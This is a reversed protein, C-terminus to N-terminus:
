KAAVPYDANHLRRQTQTTTQTSLTTQAVPYGADRYDAGPYDADAYDADSAGYGIYGPCCHLSAHLKLPIFRKYTKIRNALM